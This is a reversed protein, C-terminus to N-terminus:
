EVVGPRLARAPDVPDSAAKRGPGSDPHLIQGTPVPLQPRRRAPHAPHSGRRGGGKLDGGHVSLRTSASM